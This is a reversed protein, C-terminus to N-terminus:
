KWNLCRIMDDVFIAVNTYGKSNFHINDSMLSPPIRNNAIAEQDAQTPTISQIALGWKVQKDHVDIFFGGYKEALTANIEALNSLGDYTVGLVLFKRPGKQVMSDIIHILEVGSFLDNAGVWYIAIDCTLRNLYTSIPMPRVFKPVSLGTIKYTGDVNRVLTGPLGGISVPNVFGEQQVLPNVSAGEMNSITFSETLNVNAQTVFPLGGQRGAITNAGEGGAGANLVSKNTYSALLAPYTTGGGGAGSTLSDGYCIIDYDYDDEPEITTDTEETKKFVVTFRAGAASKTLTFGIYNLDTYGAEYRIPVLTAPFIGKAENTDASTNPLVRYITGQAWSKGSMIYFENFNMPSSSFVQITYRQGLPDTTGTVGSRITHQLKAAYGYVSTGSDSPFSFNNDYSGSAFNVVSPAGSGTYYNIETFVNMGQSNGSWDSTTSIPPVSNPTAGASTYDGGKTWTNGNWYYWSNESQVVFVGPAGTPYATQLAVLTAYVGSPTGTGIENIKSELDNYVSNFRTDIYPTILAELSGDALMSELKANIEEDVDLNAFYNMVYDRLNNWETETSEWQTKLEKVTNIIWDLNLEHFNTYPFLDM